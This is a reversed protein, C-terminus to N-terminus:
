VEKFLNDRSLVHEVMNVTSCDDHAKKCRRLFEEFIEDHRDDLLRRKQDIREKEERYIQLARSLRISLESM